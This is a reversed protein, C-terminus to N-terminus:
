AYNDTVFKQWARWRDPHYKYKPHDFAAVYFVKGGSAGAVSGIFIMEKEYEPKHAAPVQRAADSSWLGAARMQDIIAQADSDSLGWGTCLYLSANAPDGGDFYLHFNKILASGSIAM